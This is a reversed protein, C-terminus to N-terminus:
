WFTFELNNAERIYIVDIERFFSLLTSASSSSSSNPLLFQQSIIDAAVNWPKIATRRLDDIERWRLVIYTCSLTSRASTTNQTAARWMYM